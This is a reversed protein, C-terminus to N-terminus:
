TRELFLVGEAGQLDIDGTLLPAGLSRATELMIADALGASKRRTRLQKLTEGSRDAVPWVLDVVSSHALIFDRADKWGALEERHFKASLEAIALVPTAGNGRDIFEKVREAHPGGRFYDAWAFSDFVCEYTM